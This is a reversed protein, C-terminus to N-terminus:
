MSIVAPSRFRAAIFINLLWVLSEKSLSPSPGSHLNKGWLFAFKLINNSTLSIMSSLTSLLSLFCCHLRRYYTILFVLNYIPAFLFSPSDVALLYSTPDDVLFGSVHAVFQLFWFWALVCKWSYSSHLLLHFIIHSLAAFACQFFFSHHWGSALWLILFCFFSARFEIGSPVMISRTRFLRPM